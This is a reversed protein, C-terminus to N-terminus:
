FMIIQTDAAVCIQRKDPYYTWAPHKTYLIQLRSHRHLVGGFPYDIRMLLFCSIDKSSFLYLNKRIDMDTTLFLLVVHQLWSKSWEKNMYSLCFIYSYVVVLCIMLQLREFKNFSCAIRTETYSYVSKLDTTLWSAPRISWPQQSHMIVIINISIIAASFLCHCISPPLPPSLSVCLCICPGYYWLLIFLVEVGLGVQLYFCDCCSGVSVQWIIWLM